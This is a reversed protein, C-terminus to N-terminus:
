PLFISNSQMNRRTQLM